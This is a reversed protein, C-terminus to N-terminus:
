KAEFQNNIMESKVMELIGLLAVISMEGDYEHILDKIRSALESEKPYPRISKIKSNKILDCKHCYRNSDLETFCVPCESM